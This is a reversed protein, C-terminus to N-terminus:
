SRNLSFIFGGFFDAPLNVGPQNPNLFRFYNRESNYLVINHARHLLSVTCVREVLYQATKHVTKGQKEEKVPRHLKM